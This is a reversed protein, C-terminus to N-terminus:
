SPHEPLELVVTRGAQEYRIEGARALRGMAQGTELPNWLFLRWDRAEVLRRGRLGEEYLLRCLHLVVKAPIEPHQVSKRQVGAVIGFDRLASLVNGALKKRTTDRWRRVQPENSEKHLLFELVDNRDVRCGSTRASEYLKTTVFEFTLRDRRAYHVYALRVFLPNAPEGVAARKIDDVVWEPPGWFFYRWNLADWIHQRTIRASQRLIRGSLCLDRAEKVSAGSALTSFVAQAERLLAGKSTNRASIAGRDSWSPFPDGNHVFLRQLSSVLV